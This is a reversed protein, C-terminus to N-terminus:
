FNFGTPNGDRINFLKQFVFDATPYFRHCPKIGGNGCENCTRSQINESVFHVSGDGFLVQVGGTHESTIAYRQCSFGGGNWFRTGNYGQFNINWTSRFGTSSTSRRRGPWVAGIHPSLARESIHMTNSLGDTFDRIRRTGDSSYNGASESMVYNSTALNNFNSNTLPGTSSPCLYVNVTEQMGPDGASKGDGATPDLLEYLPANDLMPLILTGWGWRTDRGGANVYSPPFSGTQEHYNHLAIGIQKLNNKCQSRRAAERAQQVAPLLLAILIAIIAIVVLLEILTFGRKRNRECCKRHPFNPM